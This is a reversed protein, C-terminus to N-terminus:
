PLPKDVEGPKQAPHAPVPTMGRRPAPEPRHEVRETQNTTFPRAKPGFWTNYFLGYRGLNRTLQLLEDHLKDDTLLKGATGEGKELRALIVNLRQTSESLNQTVKKVDLQTDRVFDDVRRSTGRVNEAAASFSVMTNTVSARGENVLSRLDATLGAANSTTMDIQVLTSSVHQLNQTSLTMEDVRKVAGDIRALMTNVREITGGAEHLVDVVSRIAETLDVSASGAVVDGPKLAEASSSGPVVDVYRDGLLGSQNIVFKADRRVVVGQYIGLTVHARLKGDEVLKIERVKGIGVGAYMVNADVILGGVNDFTVVLPYRSASSPGLKGFKWILGAGVALCILIFMGVRIEVTRQTAM